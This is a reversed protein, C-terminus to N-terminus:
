KRRSEKYFHWARQVVTVQALFALAAIGWNMLELKYASAFSTIAILIMREAREAIGVGSMNIGEAEARSRAYSVMLSCILASFGILPHVLGSVIIGALVIADSYRDAVSDFFGGFQSVKGTIRALVGDIADLFGSLLVLIGAYFLSSHAERWSTYLYCSGTSAIVGLITVMNPTVGIKALPRVGTVIIRQFQKKLRSSVM